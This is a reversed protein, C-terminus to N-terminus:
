IFLQFLNLLVLHFPGMIMYGESFGIQIFWYGIVLVWFGSSLIIGGM